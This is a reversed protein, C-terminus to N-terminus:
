AVQRFRYAGLSHAKAAVLHFVGWLVYFAAGIRAAWKAIQM